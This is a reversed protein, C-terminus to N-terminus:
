EYVNLGFERRKRTIEENLNRNQAILAERPSVGTFTVRRFANMMARPTYYSGPANPIGHTFSWAYYLMEAEEDTWPLLALAATNAPTYRAAPGMLGELEVGFAAQVEASSWWSLFEWAADKDATNSFMVSAGAMATQSIDLSGDEQPTGMINTMAWLGSIEPAGVMLRNFMNYPQISAVIEGNRFRTYFDAELPFSFNTFFDTYTRFAAISLPDDLLARSRDENYIEGGKQYLLATFVSDVTTNTIAPITIQLNNRQIVPIIQFLEDWTGPPELGLEEFVDTRYFFMSFVQTVPVGYIGDLHRFQTVASEHFRQMVENYDPFNTLDHLADRLAFNIATEGSVSLAIDPGIGAITSEILSGLVLELTVHIGTEPTFSYEILDRLVQAQDRGAGGADLWVRVSRADEDAEFIEVDSNRFSAFFRLVSFRMRAFWSVNTRPAAVDPSFFAIHDLYMPQSSNHVVWAGLASINNRFSVLRSHIEDTDRIFRRLQQQLTDLAALRSGRAGTVEYLQNLIKDIRYYSYELTDVLGPVSLELFFDTFPDPRPGTIMVIQRYLENIDMLVERAQRLIDTLDGLTYAIKIQNVGQNLYVRLPNGNNDSPVHMQWDMNFHFRVGSFEYFPIQGNIYIDRSAFMGDLTNQKFRLALYYFGAEPVYVDWTIFQGPTNWHSGGIQNIRIRSPDNFNGESDLTTASVRDFSPRLTAGARTSSLQGQIKIMRGTTDGVGAHMQMYEAHSILAPQQHLIIADLYFAVGNTSITLTNVGAYFHFKFNDRYSGDNSQLGKDIFTHLMAQRPRIENGAADTRIPTIDEFLRPLRLGSAERFPLAGNIELNITMDNSSNDTTAYRIKINYMGEVPVYIDYTVWTRRGPFLVGSDSGLHSAVTVDDGALIFDAGNVEIALEPSGQGSHLARYDSYRINGTEAAVLVTTCMATVLVAVMVVVFRAGRM